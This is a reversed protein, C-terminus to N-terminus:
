WMYRTPALQKGSVKRKQTALSLLNTHYTLMRLLKVRVWDWLQVRSQSMQVDRSITYWLFHPSNILGKLQNTFRKREPFLFFLPDSCFVFSFFKKLLKWRTIEWQALYSHLHWNLYYFLVTLKRRIEQCCSKSATTLSSKGCHMRMKAWQEGSSRLVVFSSRSLQVGSWMLQERPFITM